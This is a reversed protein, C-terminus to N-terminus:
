SILRCSWPLRYMVAQGSHCLAALSMTQVSLFVLGVGVPTLWRM